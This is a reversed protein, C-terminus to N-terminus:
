YVRFVFLDGSELFLKLAGIAVHRGLDFGKLLFDNLDRALLLEAGLHVLLLDGRLLLLLLKQIVVDRLKLGDYLALRLHVRAQVLLVLGQVLLEGRLPLCGGLSLGLESSHTCLSLVFQTVHAM